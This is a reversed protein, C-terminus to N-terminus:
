LSYAELCQLSPMLEVPLNTNHVWLECDSSPSLFLWCKICWALNSIKILFQTFASDLYPCLPINNCLHCLLFYLCNQPFLIHLIKRDTLLCISCFLWLVLFKWVTTRIHKIFSDKLIKEKKILRMLIFLYSLYILVITMFTCLSKVKEKKKAFNSWVSFM